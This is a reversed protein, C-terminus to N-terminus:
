KLDLLYHTYRKYDLQHKNKINYKSYRDIVHKMTPFERFHNPTKIKRVGLILRCPIRDLLAYDDEIHDIGFCVVLDVGDLLPTLDERVDCFKVNKIGNMRAEELAVDSFETWVYDINPFNEQVLKAFIYGGSAIELIKKPQIAQIWNLLFEARRLYMGKNFHNTGRWKVWEKDNHEKSDNIM